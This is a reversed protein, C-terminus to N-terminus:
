VAGFDVTSKLNRNKTLLDLDQFRLDSLMSIPFTIGGATCGTITISSQARVEKAFLRSEGGITLYLMGGARRADNLTNSGQSIAM